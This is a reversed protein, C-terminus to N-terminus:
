QNVNDQNNVDDSPSSKAMGFINLKMLLNSKNDSHVSELNLVFVLVTSWVALIVNFVSLNKVAVFEGLAIPIFMLQFFWLMGWRISVSYKFAIIIVAFLYNFFKM